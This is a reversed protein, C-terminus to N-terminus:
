RALPARDGNPRETVFTCEVARDILAVGVLRVRRGDDLRFSIPDRIADDNDFAAVVRAADPHGRLARPLAELAAARAFAGPLPLRGVHFSRVHARSGHEDADITITLSLVREDREAGIRVADRGLRVRVDPLNEVLRADRHALWRPMRHELWANAHAEDLSITWPEGNPRGKHMESVIFRELREALEAGDPAAAAGEWWPPAARSLSYSHVGLATSLAVVVLLIRVPVPTARWANRAADAARSRLAPAPPTESSLTHAPDNVLHNRPRVSRRPARRRPRM